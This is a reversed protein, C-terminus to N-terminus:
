TLSINKDTASRFRRCFCRCSSSAAACRCAASSRSCLSRSSVSCRTAAAAAATSLSLSLSLPRFFDPACGSFPSTSLMSRDADGGLGRAGGGAAGTFGNKLIRFRGSGGAAAAAAAQSVPPAALRRAFPPTPAAPPPPPPPLQRRRGASAGMCTRCVALSQAAPAMPLMPAPPPAATGTAAAAAPQKNCISPSPVSDRTGERSAGDSGAARKSSKAVVAAATSTLCASPVQQGSRNEKTRRVETGDAAEIGGYRCSWPPGWSRCATTM